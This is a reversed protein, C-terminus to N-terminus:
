YNKSIFLKNVPPKNNFNSTTPTLTARWLFDVGYILKIRRWNFFFFSSPSPSPKINKEYTM